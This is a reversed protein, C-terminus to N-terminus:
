AVRHKEAQNMMECYERASKRTPFRQDEDIFRRDVVIWYSKETNVQNSGIDVHRMSLVYYRPLNKPNM